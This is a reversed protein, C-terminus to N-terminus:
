FPQFSHRTIPMKAAMTVDESKVNPLEVLGPYGLSFAYMAAWTERMSGSEDQTHSVDSQSALLFESEKPFSKGGDASVRVRIQPANGSRDTYPLVIRGDPLAISYGPQGGFDLSQYDWSKGRDNSVKYHVNLYIQRSHRLASITSSPIAMLCAAPASGLLLNASRRHRGSFEIPGGDHAFRHGFPAAM